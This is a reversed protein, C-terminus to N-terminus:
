TRAQRVSPRGQPMAATIESMRPKDMSFRLILRVEHDGSQSDKFNLGLRVYFVWSGNSNGGQAGQFRLRVLVKHLKRDPVVDPDDQEKLKKTKEGDDGAVEHVDALENFKTVATKFAPTLVEVNQEALMRVVLDPFGTEEKPLQQQNFEMPDISIQLESDLPNSISFVLEAREGPELRSSGQDQGANERRWAWAICRPVFMVATNNKQFPPNSCPNIQPKVVIKNCIREDSQSQSSATQAQQRRTLSSNQRPASATGSADERGALRCRRARKTLLPKRVPLLAWMDINHLPAELQAQGVHHEGIVDVATPVVADSGRTSQYGYSVQQLRQELSALSAIGQEDEELSAQMESRLSSRRGRGPPSAEEYTQLLEDVTLGELVPVAVTEKAEKAKKEKEEKELMDLVNEATPPGAPAKEEEKPKPPKSDSRLDQRQVVDEQLKNELMELSWPGTPRDSTMSAKRFAMAGGIRKGAMGALFSGRTLSSRRRIRKVLERERQQEQARSRFADILVCMRQRPEAERELEIIKKILQEPQSAELRGKSSWRCYGCALHYSQEAGTPLVCMTLTSSCAPCEWCKSCRMGYLMAESSPMNELCHPCYYSDVDEALDRRSVVRSCGDCFYLQSLPLCQPCANSERADAGTLFDIRFSSPKLTTSGLAGDPDFYM